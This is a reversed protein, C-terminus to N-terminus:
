SRRLQGADGCYRPCGAHRCLRVPRSQLCPSQDASSPSGGAWCGRPLGPSQKGYLDICVAGPEAPLDPSVTAPRAPDVDQRYLWIGAAILLIAWFWAGDGYGMGLSSIAILGGILLIAIWLWSRNEDGVYTSARAAAEEGVSRAKGEEPILLWAALYLAVGAGGLLALFAFALRFLIPDIRFYAGLAPWM